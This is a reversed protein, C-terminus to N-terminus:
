ERDIKEDGTEFRKKTRERERETENERKKDKQSKM